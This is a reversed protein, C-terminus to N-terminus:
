SDTDSVGNGFTRVSLVTMAETMASLTIIHCTSNYTKSAKQRKFLKKRCVSKNAYDM